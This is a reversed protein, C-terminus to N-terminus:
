YNVKDSKSEWQKFAVLCSERGMNEKILLSKDEEGNITGIVRDFCVGNQIEIDGCYINRLKAWHMAAFTMPDPRYYTIMDCKSLDFNKNRITAQRIANVAAYSTPDQTNEFDDKGSGIIEARITNGASDREAEIIWARDETKSLDMAIGYQTKFFGLIDSTENLELQLKEARGCFVDYIFSDDFDANKADERNCGIYVKKIGAYCITALCMPCPECSSYLEAESFDVFKNEGKFIEIANRIATVEAHATPDGTRVVMNHGSAIVRDGIVIAAGFPGGDGSKVAKEAEKAALEMFKLKEAM